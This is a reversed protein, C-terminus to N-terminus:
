ELRLAGTDRARGKTAPCAVLLSYTCSTTHTSFLSRTIVWCQALQVHRHTLPPHRVQTMVPAALHPMQPWQGHTMHAPMAPMGVSQGPGMAAQMPVYGAPMPVYQPMSGLAPMGAMMM